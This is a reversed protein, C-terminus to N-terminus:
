GSTRASFGDTPALPLSVTGNGKEPSAPAEGTGCSPCAGSVTAASAGCPRFFGLKLVGRPCADICQGCRICDPHDVWSKEQLAYDEMVAIGMPCTRTCQQCRIQGALEPNIHVRFLGFRGVLSYLAGVPCLVRCWIRPQLYELLVIGLLLALGPGAVFVLSRVMINIPSLAQFVPVSAILAFGLVLGLVGYKLRGPAPGRDVDVVRRGLGRLVVIRLSQNLELLLGLPCVWGCFVPGLLAASVLLIGAGVLVDVEMSRTAVLYEVAALPDIFPVVDMLSTASTSGRFWPFWEFRGLVLLALFLGTTGRHAWTWWHIRRRAQNVFEGRL